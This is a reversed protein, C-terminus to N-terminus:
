CHVNEHGLILLYLRQIFISTPSLLPNLTGAYSGRCGYQGFRLQWCQWEFLSRPSGQYCAGRRCAWPIRGSFSLWYPPPLEHYSYYTGSRATWSMAWPRPSSDPTKLTVLISNLVTSSMRTTLQGFDFTLQTCPPVLLHRCEPNYSEHHRTEQYQNDENDNGRREDRNSDGSEEYAEYGKKALNM